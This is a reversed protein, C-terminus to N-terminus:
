LNCQKSEARMDHSGKRWAIQETKLPHDLWVASPSNYLMESISLDLSKVGSHHM